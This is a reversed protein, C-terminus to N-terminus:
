AARTIARRRYGAPPEARHPWSTPRWWLLRSCRIHSGRVGVRSWCETAWRGAEWGRSGHPYVHRPQTPEVARGAALVVDNILCLTSGRAVAVSHGSQPVVVASTEAVSRRGRCGSGSAEPVVRLDRRL